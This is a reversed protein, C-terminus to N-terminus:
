RHRPATSGGQSDSARPLMESCRRGHSRSSYLQTSNALRVAGGRRAASSCGARVVCTQLVQALQLMMSTSMPHAACGEQLYGVARNVEHRRLAQVGLFALCTPEAALDAPTAAALVDPIAAPGPQGLNGVVSIATALLLGPPQSPETRCILAQALPADGLSIPM